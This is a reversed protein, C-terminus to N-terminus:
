EVLMELGQGGPPLGDGPVPVIEVYVPAATLPLHDLAAGDWAKVRMAVGRPLAIAELPLDVVPPANVTGGAARTADGTTPAAATAWMVVVLGQGREGAFPHVAVSTGARAALVHERLAGLVAGLALVTPEDPGALVAPQPLGYARGGLAHALIRYATAAPKLRGDRRVLGFSAAAEEGDWGRDMLEHYLVVNVGAQALWVHARVLYLAQEEPTVGHRHPPTASVGTHTPYGLRWVWIEPNAGLSGALSRVDNIVVPLGEPPAPWRNVDVVFGALGTLGGERIFVELWRYDLGSAAARVRAAPQVRRIVAATDQVFAAHSLAESAWLIPDADLPEDRVIIWDTIAWAFRHIVQEVFALWDGRNPAPWVTQRVGDAPWPLTEPYSLVGVPRLGYTRARRVAFDYGDWAFREPEPQVREWAFEIPAVTAGLSGAIPMLASAALPDPGLHLGFSMVPERALAGSTFFGLPGALLGALLGLVLLLRADWRRRM